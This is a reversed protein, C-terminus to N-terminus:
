LNTLSYFFLKTISWVGNLLEVNSTSSYYWVEIKSIGVGPAGSGSGSTTLNIAETESVTDDSYTTVTKSWIYKGSVYSPVVSTWTDGPQVSSNSLSYMPVVSVVTKNIKDKVDSLDSTMGNITETHSTVTQSISDSKIQLQAYSDKLEDGQKMVDHVELQIKDKYMNLKSFEEYM